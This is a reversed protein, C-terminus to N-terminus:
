VGVGLVNYQKNIAYKRARRASDIGYLLPVLM